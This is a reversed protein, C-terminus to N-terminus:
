ISKKERKQTLDLFPELEAAKKMKREFEKEREPLNKKAKEIKESWEKAADRDFSLAWKHYDVGAPFMCSILSRNLYRLDKDTLEEPKRKLLELTRDNMHRRIRGDNLFIEPDPFKRDKLLRNLGTVVARLDDDGISKKEMCKKIM